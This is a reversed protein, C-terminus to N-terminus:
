EWVWVLYLGLCTRCVYLSLYFLLCTRVLVLCVVIRGCEAVMQPSDVGLFNCNFRLVHSANDELQLWLLLHTGVNQCPLIIQGEPNTLKNTFMEKKKAESGTSGQSIGVSMLDWWHGNAGSLNPFKELGAWAFNSLSKLTTIILYIRLTYWLSFYDSIRM